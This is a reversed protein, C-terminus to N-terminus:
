ILPLGNGSAISSSYYAWSIGMWICDDIPLNARDAFDYGKFFGDLDESVVSFRMPV